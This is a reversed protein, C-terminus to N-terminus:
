HEFLWRWVAMMAFFLGVAGIPVFMYLLEFAFRRWNFRHVDDPNTLAGPDMYIRLKPIKLFYNGLIYSCVIVLSILGLWHWATFPGGGTWLLEGRPGVTNALAVIASIM